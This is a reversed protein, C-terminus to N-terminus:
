KEGATGKLVADMRKVGGDARAQRWSDREAAMRMRAEEVGGAAVRFENATAPERGQSDGGFLVPGDAPLALLPSRRACGDAPHQAEQMEIRVSEMLDSVRSDHGM